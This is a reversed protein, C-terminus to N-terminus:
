KWSLEAPPTSLHRAAARHGAATARQLVAPSGARDRDATLWAALFGADFADGAGTTDVATIPRTAVELRLPPQEPGRALVTAGDAGRKVIVIPSWDVLRELPRAGLLGAAEGATAFLLDAAVRELLSEAAQRGAALLPGSSALDVSIRGGARRALDVAALGAGGLPAGLLSYAPLHLLEAGGFWGPRLHGATLEDAAGRDAVFSREGGRTVLVAIRGSPRSAVRVARVQVGDGRVAEVLARGAADRGVATVLQVRVGLRALVRAVNAASGGPRLRVTGPVDTGAVTPREPAVVVDLM